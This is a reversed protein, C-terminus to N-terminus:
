TRRRYRRQLSGAAVRRNRLPRTTVFPGEGRSVVRSGPDTRSAFAVILENEGECPPAREPGAGDVQQELEEASRLLPVSRDHRDPQSEPDVDAGSAHDPRRTRSVRTRAERWRYVGRRRVRCRHRRGAPLPMM